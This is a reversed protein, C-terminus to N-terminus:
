DDKKKTKIVSTDKKKNFKWDNYVKLFHLPCTKGKIGDNPIYGGM